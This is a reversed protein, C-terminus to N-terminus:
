TDCYEGSFVKELADDLSLLPIPVRGGFIDERSNPIILRLGDDANNAIRYSMYGQFNSSKKLSKAPLPNALLWEADIKISYTGGGYPLPARYNNSKCPVVRCIPQKATSGVIQLAYVDNPSYCHLTDGLFIMGFSDIFAM